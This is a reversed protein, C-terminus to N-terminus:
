LRRAVRDDDSVRETSCVGLIVEVVFDAVILIDGHRLRDVNRAHLKQTAKRRQLGATHLSVHEIRQNNGQVQKLLSAAPLVFSCRAPADKQHGIGRSRNATHLVHVADQILEFFQVALKVDHVCRQRLDYRKGHSDGMSVSNSQALLPSPKSRSSDALDSVLTISGQANRPVIGSVEAETPSICVCASFSSISLLMASAHLPVMIGAECAISKM